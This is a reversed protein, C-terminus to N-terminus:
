RQRWNTMPRCMKTDSTQRVLLVMDDLAVAWFEAVGEGTSSGPLLSMVAQTFKEATARAVRPAPKRGSGTMVWPLQSNVRPMAYTASSSRTQARDRIGMRNTDSTG